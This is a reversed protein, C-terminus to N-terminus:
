SEDDLAKIDECCKKESEQCDGERPKLKFCCEHKLYSFFGLGISAILLIFTMVYLTKIIPAYQDLIPISGGVIGVYSLHYVFVVSLLTSTALLLGKEEFYWGIWILILPIILMTVDPVPSVGIGYWIAQSVIVTILFVISILIATVFYFLCREKM